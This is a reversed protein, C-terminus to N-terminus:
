NQVIGRKKGFQGHTQTECEVIRQTNVLRARARIHTQTQTHIRGKSGCQIRLAKRNTRPM